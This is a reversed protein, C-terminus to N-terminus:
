YSVITDARTVRRALVIARTETVVILLKEKKKELGRFLLSGSVIRLFLILLSLV